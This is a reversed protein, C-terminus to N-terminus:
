FRVVAGFFPGNISFKVFNDDKVLKYYRFKYGGSLGFHRVPFYKVAGEAHFLRDGSFVIGGLNHEFSVKSFPKYDLDYGITAAFKNISGEAIRTGNNTTGNLNIRAGVVGADIMPGFRFKETGWRYSYMARFTRLKLDAETDLNAQFTNGLFTLSRSLRTTRNWGTDTYEALFKHKGSATRHTYRLEFGLTNGFDFDRKFSVDSGPNQTTSFRADGSPISYVGRAEIENKPDAPLTQACLATTTFLMILVILAPRRAFRRM